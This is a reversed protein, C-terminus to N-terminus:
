FEESFDMSLSDDAAGDAEESERPAAAPAAAEWKKAVKGPVFNKRAAKFASDLEKLAVDKPKLERLKPEVVERAYELFKGRAHNYLYITKQSKTELTADRVVPSSHEGARLFGYWIDNKSM